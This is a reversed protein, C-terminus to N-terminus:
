FQGNIVIGLRHHTNVQSEALASKLSLNIPKVQFANMSYDLNTLTRFTKLSTIQHFLRFLRKGGGILWEFCFYNDIIKSLSYLSLEWM